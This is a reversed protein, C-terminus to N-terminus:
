ELEEEIEKLTKETGRDNVLDQLTIAGERWLRAKNVGMMNEAFGQDKEDKEKLWEDFSMDGPVQGDMSARTSEPIEEAGEVGTIEEFSKIIPVEVSRCRWHRPVGGNYELKTGNIPNKDLDWCAGSYAMCIPTTRNDLTSLQQTGKIIDSNGEYLKSRTENSIAMVSSSVLAEANRRAKTLFEGPEAKTGPIGKIGGVIEGNIKKGTINAAMQALTEGRLVSQRVMDKFSKTVDTSQRSWWERSPAGEILTESAITEAQIRTITNNALRFKLEKNIVNVTTKAEFESLETLEYDMMEDIDRYRSEVTKTVNAFLGNLKNRQYATMGSDDIESIVLEQFLEQQLKKLIKFVKNRNYNAVKLLDFAKARIRDAIISNISAPM